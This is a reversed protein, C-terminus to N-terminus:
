WMAVLWCAICFSVISFAALNQKVNAGRQVVHRILLVIVAYSLLGMIVVTSIAGLAYLALGVVLGLMTGSVSTFLPLCYRVKREQFIRQEGCVFTCTYM